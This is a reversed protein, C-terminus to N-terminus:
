AEDEARGRRRKAHYRPSPPPIESTSFLAALVTDETPEVSPAESEPVRDELIMNIDTRLNDFAARLTSVDVLHALRALVRM